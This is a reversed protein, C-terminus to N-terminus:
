FVDECVDDDNNDVASFMLRRLCRFIYGSPARFSNLMKGIDLPWVDIQNGDLYKGLSSCSCWIYTIFWLIWSDEFFSPNRCPSPPSTRKCRGIINTTVPWRRGTISDATWCRRLRGHHETESCASQSFIKKLM